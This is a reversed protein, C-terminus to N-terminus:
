ACDPCVACQHVTIVTAATRPPMSYTPRAASTDTRALLFRVTLAASLTPTITIRATGGPAITAPPPPWTAGFRPAPAPELPAFVTYIICLVSFSSTARVPVCLRCNHRPSFHRSDRAAVHVQLAPERHFTVTIVHRRRTPLAVNCPLHRPPRIRHADFPILSNKKM